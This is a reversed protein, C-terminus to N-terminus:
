NSSGGTGGTGGTPPPLEGDPPPIVTPPIEPLEEGEDVPIGDPLPAEPDPEADVAAQFKDPDSLVASSDIYTPMGAENVPFTPDAALSTSLTQTVDAIESYTRGGEQADAGILADSLVMTAAQVNTSTATDMSDLAAQPDNILLIKQEDTLITGYPLTALLVEDIIISVDLEDGVGIERLEQIRQDILTTFPTGAIPQGPEILEGPVTYSVATMDKGNSEDIADNVGFSGYNEDFLFSCQTPDADFKPFNGEALSISGKGGTEAIFQLGDGCDIFTNLYRVAGDFAQLSTTTQPAEIRNHNDSGCATLLVGSVALAIIKYKM